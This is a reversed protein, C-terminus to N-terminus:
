MVFIIWIYGSNIHPAQVVKTEDGINGFTLKALLILSRGM